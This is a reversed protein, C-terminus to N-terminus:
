SRARQLGCDPEAGLKIADRILDELRHRGIVSGCLFMMTRKILNFIVDGDGVGADFSLKRAPKVEAVLYLSFSASNSAMDSALHYVPCGAGAAQQM